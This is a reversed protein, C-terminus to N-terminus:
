PRPGLTPLWPKRALSPSRSMPQPEDRCGDYGSFVSESPECHFM